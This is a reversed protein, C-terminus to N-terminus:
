ALEFEKKDTYFILRQGNFLEIELRGLHVQIPLGMVLRHPKLVTNWITPFDAGSRCAAICSKLLEEAV